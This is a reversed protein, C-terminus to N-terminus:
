IVRLLYNQSPFYQAVSNVIVTDPSIDETLNHIDAATANYMRLKDSMGPISKAAKTIFKVARASPEVGIYSEFDQGLNFLVMGSGSGIELFRGPPKGNLLAGITDELWEKMEAKDIPTGDFMSNWGIFDKGITETQVEDINTYAEDEYVGRWVEVQQSEQQDRLREDVAIMDEEKLTVLGVLRPEQGEIHQVGVMTEKVSHQCSLANTVEGLHVERGHVGAQGDPFRLKGPQGDILQYGKVQTTVVKKSDGENKGTPALTNRSSSGQTATSYIWCATERLSHHTYLDFVKLKPLGVKRAESVVRMVDISHGGLDFFNDDPGLSSPDLNLVNAWIQLLQSEVELATEHAPLNGTSLAINFEPMDLHRPLKVGTLPVTYGM